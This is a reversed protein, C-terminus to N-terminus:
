MTSPFKGAAALLYLMRLTAQFYPVDDGKTNLWVTMAAEFKAPDYAAALAFAGHFASNTQEMSLTGLNADAWTRVGQMFTRAKADGSFAYDIMIRWPTRCADWSYGAGYWDSGDFKSWDPVLGNMRAQYMPLLEYTGTILANWSSAQDSFYHAFVRYYGPAFYSPNIRPQGSDSCGGFKDGPRLIKRGSCDETEFKLIKGALDRAKDLYGGDSWRANAQVLAMAVDLDGDSAANSNNNGPNECVGTSWNMLGNSDAHGTYYKFLGDFFERDSFNVALLMGYGIGESVVSNGDKVVVAGSGNSCTQTYKSKWAAYGDNLMQETVQPSIAAKWNPNGSGASGASGASGTTSGGGSGGQASAGGNVGGGGASTNGGSGGNGGSAGSSGGSGTQGGSSAGGQANGGGAGAQAGGQAASSGGASAGGNGNPTGGSSGDQGVQSHSCAFLFAFGSVAVSFRTRNM